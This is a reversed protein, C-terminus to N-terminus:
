MYENMVKKFEPDAQLNLKQIANELEEQDVGTQKWMKDTSKCQEVMIIFMMEKQKEMPDGGGRQMMAQMEKQREMMSDMQKM